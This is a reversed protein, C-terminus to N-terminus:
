KEANEKTPIMTRIIDPTVSFTQTQQLSLQDENLTMRFARGPINGQTEPMIFIELIMPGKEKANTVPSINLSISNPGDKLGGSVVEAMRTNEFSHSSVNNIVVDVKRGPCDTFVKAIYRPAPCPAPVPPIYGLPQFGDQEALVKADRNRLRDKVSPLNGLNFFRAQDYKWSGKEYTFLLVLANETPSGGIGWDVKGFYTAAATPGKVITGIYKLPMLSAPSMRQAFLSAPFPKKESVALNRVKMKRYASTTQQWGEYNERLMSQRWTNYVTELDKKLREEQVTQSSAAPFIAALLVFATIFFHHTM